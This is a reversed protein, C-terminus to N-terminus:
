IRAGAIGVADGTTRWRHEIVALGLRVWVLISMDFYFFAPLLTPLHGAKLFERNIVYGEDSRM